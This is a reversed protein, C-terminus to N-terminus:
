HESIRQHLIIHHTIKIINIINLLEIIKKKLSNIDKDSICGRIYFYHKENLQKICFM